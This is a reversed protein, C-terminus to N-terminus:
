VPPGTLPSGFQAANTAAWGVQCTPAVGNTMASSAPSQVTLSTWRPSFAALLFLLFSQLFPPQIFRSRSSPEDKLFWPSQTWNMFVPLYGACSWVFRADLPERM